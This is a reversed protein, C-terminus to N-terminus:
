AEQETDVPLTIPLIEKPPRPTADRHVVINRVVNELPKAAEEDVAAAGNFIVRLFWNPGQIGAFRMPARGSRGEANQVPVQALLETGFVGDREEITAGQKTLQVKLEGRVDKWLGGSKPSAVAMLRVASSDLLLTLGSIGRGDESVDPSVRLDPTLPIRLSGFDVRAIDDSDETSDFPGLDNSLGEEVGPQEDQNHAGLDETDRTEKRKSFFGM